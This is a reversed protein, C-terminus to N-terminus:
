SIISINIVIGPATYYLTPDLEYITHCTTRFNEFVDALLLVDCKMYLDSYEGLTKLQFKEWVDCAFKYDESSIEEDNLENFFHEKAPLSTEVLRDRSDVYDYPFIGKRELMAIQELSYDKQCEKYLIKKKDSPILSALQSLSAAMFRFSDIFKLKIKEQMFYTSDNVKKTFSIYHEANTPIISVDGELATALKKIFLHSDYGSLNHM